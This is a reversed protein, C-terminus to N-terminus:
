WSCTSTELWGRGADSYNSKLKALDGGRINNHTIICVSFEIALKKHIRTYKIAQSYRLTKSIMSMGRTPAIVEQLVERSARGPAQSQEFRHMSMTLLVNPRSGRRAVPLDRRRFCRYSAGRLESYLITCDRCRNTVALIGAACGQRHQASVTRLAPCRGCQLRFCAPACRRHSRLEALRFLHPFCYNTPSVLCQAASVIKTM